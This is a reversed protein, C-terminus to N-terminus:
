APGSPTAGDGHLERVFADVTAGDHRRSRRAQVSDRTTPRAAVMTGFTAFPGDVAASVLRTVRTRHLQM